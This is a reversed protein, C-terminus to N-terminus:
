LYVEYLSVADDCRLIDCLYDLLPNDILTMTMMTFHMLCMFRPWFTIKTRKLVAMKSLCVSNLHSKLQNSKWKRHNRKKVFLSANHNRFRQKCDFTYKESKLYEFFLRKQNPYRANMSKLIGIIPNNPTHSSVICQRQYRCLYMDMQISFENFVYVYQYSSAQTNNQFVAHSHLWNALSQSSKQWHIAFM